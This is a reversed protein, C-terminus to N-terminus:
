APRWSAIPVGEWSKRAVHTHRRLSSLVSHSRDSIFGFLSFLLDAQTFRACMLSVSRARLLSLIITYLARLFHSQWELWWTASKFWYYICRYQWSLLTAGSARVNRTSTLSRCHEPFARKEWKSMHVLADDCRDISVLSNSLERSKRVRSRSEFWSM